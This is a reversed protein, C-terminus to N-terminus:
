LGTNQLRLIGTGPAAADSGLLLCSSADTIYCLTQLTSNAPAPQGQAPTFTLTVPFRGDPSATYTGSVVAGSSSTAAPPIASANFSNVDATGSVASVSDSIIQAAFDESGAATSAIFDSAYQGSFASAPNSGSLIQQISPTQQLAVGAGSPGSAGAAGGDLEVLYLGQDLTPYAAFQSIGDTSAGSLTIQSRGNTPPTCTVTTLPVNSLITGNLPVADLLGTSGCTFIGGAVQPQATTTAGATTFAYSGTVSPSAPQATFYGGAIIPPTGFASDRWDTVVFHSADITWLDLNFRTPLGLNVSSLTLEGGANIGSLGHAVTAFPVSTIVGNDSQDTIYSYSSTSPVTVASAVFYGATPRSVESGSLILSYVGNLGSAGTLNQLDLTGTGSGFSDTESLLAHQPTVFVLSLTLAGKGNVGFGNPNLASVDIVLHIQGRGDLGIAYTSPSVIHVSPAANGSADVVDLNGATINGNGDGSIVGGIVYAGNVSNRATLLMVFQGLLLSNPPPAATVTVTQTATKTPDATSAATITVSGGTPIASPATFTTPAGSATHAPSFTGCAGTSGCSVTWDIGANAVDNTLSAVLTSTQSQVITSNPVGQDLKISIRAVITVNTSATLVSPGGTASATATITVVPTPGPPVTPPATFTAPTGSATHSPSVTGCPTNACSVTWDVGSNTTDNSLTAIVTAAANTAMTSPPVQTLSITIASTVTFSATASYSHDATAFATLMVTGGVIGPVQAPGPVIFPIPANPASHFSSPSCDVSGNVTICTAKWDVGLSGPDGAVSAAFSVIAGSPASQPPFQTINVATVTSIITVNASLAKSHDTDSLAIITVTGKTPVAFPATFLTTGGSATHTPSFSGCNPTSGCSAVWDVGANAADNSVTASVQAGSGVILSSPPAQVIAVSIVPTQLPPAIRASGTSCGSMGWFATLGAICMLLAGLNVGWSRGKRVQFLSSTDVSQHLHNM